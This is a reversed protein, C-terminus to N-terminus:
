SFVVRFRGALEEAVEYPHGSSRRRVAEKGPDRQRAPARFRIQSERVGGRAGTRARVHGPEQAKHHVRLFPRFHPPLESIGCVVSRKYMSSPYEEGLGRWRAVAASLDLRDRNACGAWHAPASSFLACNTKAHAGRRPGLRTGRPSAPSLPSASRHDTTALSKQQGSSRGRM